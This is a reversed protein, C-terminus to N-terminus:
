QEYSEGGGASDPELSELVAGDEGAHVDKKEKEKEKEKEEEEREKADEAAKLAKWRAETLRKLWSLFLEAEEELVSLTVADCNLLAETIFEPNKQLAKIMGAQLGHPLKSTNPAEMLWSAVDALLEVQEGGKSAWFAATQLLGIQRVEVPASLVASRYKKLKDKPQDGYASAHKTMRGAAHRGRIHDLILTDEHKM